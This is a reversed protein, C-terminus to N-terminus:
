SQMAELDLGFSANCYDCIDDYQDQARFLGLFDESGLQGLLLVTRKSNIIDVFSSNYLNGLSLRKGYICPLLNGDPYVVFDSGTFVCKEKYGFDFGELETKPIKAARGIRKVVKYESGGISVREFLGSRSAINAVTWPLTSDMQEFHFSDNSTIDIENAGSQHLDVLFRFIEEPTGAFTANTQICIFQPCGYRKKISAACNLGFLLKDKVITPEGGSFWVRDVYPGVSHLIHEIQALTMEEKRYPGAEVFCHRCELNCRLTICLCVSKLRDM